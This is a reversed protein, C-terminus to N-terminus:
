ARSPPRLRAVAVQAADQPSTLGNLDITLWGDYGASELDSSLEAWNVEGAGLPTVQARAGTGRIGDRARVHRVLPGISSLIAHGEQDDVLMALPDLDVGFWPCDATRLAHYLAAFPALTARFGVVVGYRDSLAGMERLATHASAAFSIDRPSPPIPAPAPEIATAEPLLILGAQEQTVRPRPPEPAVPPPPLAGLDILVMPRLLTGSLRLVSKFRSLERDLDAQPSLGAPELTHSLGVLQQGHSSLVHRVEGAGTDSLQTLDLSRSRAALVVGECGLGRATRAAARLDSNALPAADISLKSPRM